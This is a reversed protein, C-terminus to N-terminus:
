PDLSWLSEGFHDKQSASSMSPGQQRGSVQSRPRCSCPRLSHPWAPSAAGWGGAGSGRHSSPRPRPTETHPCHDTQKDVDMRRWTVMSDTQSQTPKLIQVLWATAGGARRDGGQCSWDSPLLPSELTGHQGLGQATQWLGTFELRPLFARGTPVPGVHRGGPTCGGM